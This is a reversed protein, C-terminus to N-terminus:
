RYISFWSVLQRTSLLSSELKGELPVYSLDVAFLELCDAAAPWDKQKFIPSSQVWHEAGKMDKFRILAFCAEPMGRYLDGEFRVIQFIVDSFCTRSIFVGTVGM